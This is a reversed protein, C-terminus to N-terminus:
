RAWAGEQTLDLALVAGPHLLADLRRVLLPIQEQLAFLQLTGGFGGGHIRCVGRPTGTDRAAEDLACDVLSLAVMAPQDTGFSTVNQLYQASSAGSLATLRCFQAMDGNRLACARGRVSEVERFYHLARMFAVDGLQQRIEQANALVDELSTQRLTRVGLLKAVAWMDQPIASFQEVNASHDIGIDVLCMRYGCAELDAELRCVEVPQTGFDIQCIGGFAIATQDMCGTKKGFYDGEVRHALQALELPKLLPREPGFLRQAVVAMLLEFAASSSLGGGAPLTSSAQVDFGSVPLGAYTLEAAVGRVLGATTNFEEPRPRTWDAQDLHIEVPAFGESAVRIVSSDNTQAQASIGLSLTATLVVGDQHDVHNGALETRGPAFAVCQKM